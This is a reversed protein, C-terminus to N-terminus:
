KDKQAYKKTPNQRLVPQENVEDSNEKSIMEFLQPANLEMELMNIKLLMSNANDLANNRVNIFSFMQQEATIIVSDRGEVEITKDIFVPLPKTVADYIEDVLKQYKSVLYPISKRRSEQLKNNEM